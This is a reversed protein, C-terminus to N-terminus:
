TIRKFLANRTGLYRNVYTLQKKPHSEYIEDIPGHPIQVGNNSAFDLEILHKNNGDVKGTYRNVTKLSDFVILTRVEKCNKKM